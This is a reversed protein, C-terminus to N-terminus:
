AGAEEDREVVCKFAVERALVLIPKYQEISSGEGVVHRLLAFESCGRRPRTTAGDHLQGCARLPLRFFLGIGDGKPSLSPCYLRSLLNQTELMSSM